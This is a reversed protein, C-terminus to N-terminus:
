KTAGVLHNHKVTKGSITKHDGAVAPGTSDKGRTVDVRRPKAQEAVPITLTLVGDHYAAVVADLNVGDGVVLQRSYSGTPREAVLYTADEPEAAHRQATVTLTNHEAIVELSDTDIGPLDFMLLFTDGQRYCDMAMPQPVRRDGLIEQALRAVDHYPDFRFLM